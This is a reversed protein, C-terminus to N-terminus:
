RTHYSLDTTQLTNNRLHRTHVHATSHTLLVWDTAFPAGRALLACVAATDGARAAALLRRGCEAGAMGVARGAEGGCVQPGHVVISYEVIAM